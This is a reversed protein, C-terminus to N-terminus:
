IAPRVLKVTNSQFVIGLAERFSEREEAGGELLAAEEATAGGVGEDYTKKLAADPAGAAASTGGQSEAGQSADGQSVASEQAVGGGSERMPERILLASLIAIAFGVTAVVLHSDRWGIAGKSQTSIKTMPLSLVLVLPSVFTPHNTAHRKVSQASAGVGESQSPALPPNFINFRPSASPLSAGAATIVNLYFFYEAGCLGPHRGVYVLPCLTLLLPPMAYVM